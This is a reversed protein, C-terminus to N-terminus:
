WGSFFSKTAFSVCARSASPMLACSATCIRKSLLGRSWAANKVTPVALASTTCDPSNELGEKAKDGRRGKGGSGHGCCSGGTVQATATFHM